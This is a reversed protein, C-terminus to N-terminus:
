RVHLTVSGTLGGSAVTVTATGARHARVVGTVPDVSAVGPHDSSWVHSAPDAIPVSPGGGVQDGTATLRLRAGPAATASPPDVTIASLVPEVSFRLGGRPTVHLLGFGAFGGHGAPVGTVAGLGGFTFQPVGGHGATVTHGAPDLIREAFGGAGESVMLVHRGPHSLQYRQVLRLYMRAEWRDGFQRTGGPRPDYAPLASAVVVVPAGARDLERVLWPYQAGAPDQYPDSARLGGHASDTVMVRVPGATYAYHTAGFVRAFGTDEPDGGAGTEGPGVADRAPVGLASGASHAAALDADTGGVAMDGLLQARDPRAGRALEPLRAAVAATVAAGPSAPDAASLRAGGGTLLTRGGPGFAGASEEYRLWSPNDPVATYHEAPLPRPSYLASLGSVDLTGSTTTGPSVALFDVFGVTLPFALGPPLQAVVFRWGHWTVYTPYLTSRVGDVGLYSEALETGGADGKVWLGIGVPERGDRTTTRVATRSSLVLQKVGSGAPMTYDLRLSGSATSGPPVVGPDASLSAPRGTTNDSLRWVGTSDMPDLGQALDGVAVEAHATAGAATATVRVTGARHDDATFVGHRDIRGLRGDGVHFRAAEAPVTVPTGSRTTGALTFRRTAGAVVDPASPSLSLHALRGVVRLPQRTGARGDTATIWGRGTRRATLRGDHWTALDAPTVRVTPAAAAPNGLRDTAYVPVPVTGGAVTTVPAGRDVVVHEAPGAQTATSYVFLGDAVPREVNGTDSPTNAVSVRRDGPARTVMETSGGGDFLEATYAGHAVLYGAAEVPTVGFATAEGARGDVTVLVAHRGDRSIGVATEPNSGSPPTGTPDHYVRGDRVLVTVGSILQTLDDDPSLSTALSVTDGTRLHAALWSGGAGAGLLGVRGGALRDVSTAGRSVSDVTFAGSGSRHGLVLTGATLGSCAGLSPTVETIGGAALDAVTNVSTLPRSASGVTVTGTFTEPGMVMSGDPRVGLQAAFGPEPSKVLVGDSIVGGIPAGSRHIDFYGGNVGAVARTRDAMSSVTEDAPDTVTDGAEVVGVRVNPDALNVDLVQTHQRGGVTDYTESFHTVGHTVTESRTRGADVVQQWGPPTAPLWSAARGTPAATARVAPGALAAPAQAVTAAVLAAAALLAPGLRAARRRLPRRHAPANM